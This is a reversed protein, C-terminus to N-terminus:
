TSSGDRDVVMLMPFGGREYDERFMWGIALFHPLQWLFLLSFLGWAGPDLTGRAAAWGMMPPIAGPVAGVVTCLPTLRKLPTYALVYSALAAVGLFYTAGNVTALLAFGATSIVLGFALADGPMLRGSPIPRSRTRHMRSDAERAWPRGRWFRRLPPRISAKRFASPM